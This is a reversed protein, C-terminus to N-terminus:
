FFFCFFILTLSPPLPQDEIALFVSVNLALLDPALAILTDCLAAFTVLPSNFVCNKFTRPGPLRSPLLPRPLLQRKGNWARQGLKIAKKRHAYM